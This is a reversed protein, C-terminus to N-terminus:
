AEDDYFQESEEEIFKGKEHLKLFFDSATKHHLSDTTRHFIDFSIGFDGFSKKQIGYFKDVVEQATIGEKRAKLTIPIGHEDMGCIFAVEKNKLRLYRVYIDAPLYAGAIHGIHIPGNGYPLAATILHRKTEPM